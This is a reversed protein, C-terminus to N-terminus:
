FKLLDFGTDANNFMGELSIGCRDLQFTMSDVSEKIEYLYTHNGNQPESMALPLGERVTFYISNITKRKKRGQYEVREGGRVKITHSGDIHSLSLDVLHHYKRVLRPFM